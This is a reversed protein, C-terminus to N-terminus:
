AHKTAESRSSSPSASGVRRASTSRGCTPTPCQRPCSFRLRARRADTAQYFQTLVAELVAADPFEWGDFSYTRNGVLKGGRVFLVQVEVASGERYLGFVDQDAGWHESV